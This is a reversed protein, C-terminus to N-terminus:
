QVTPEKGTGKCRTCNIWEDLSHKYREGSGGCAKCRKAREKMIEEFHDLTIFRDAYDISMSIDFEFGKRKLIKEIERASKAQELEIQRKGKKKLYTIRIAM